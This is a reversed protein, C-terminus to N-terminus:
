WTTAIDLQYANYKAFGGTDCVIATGLSSEIITGRPYTKLNAAVMVYDGFMKAGDDREWYPYTEEDYGLNRMMKVINDMPLNYYTEKGGHPTDYNVGDYATLPHDWTTYGEAKVRMPVQMLALVIVITVVSKLKTM